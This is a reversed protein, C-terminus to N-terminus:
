MWTPATDMETPSRKAEVLAQPRKAKEGVTTCLSTFDTYIEEVGLPTKQAQLHPNCVCRGVLFRISAITSSLIMNTDAPEELSRYCDM